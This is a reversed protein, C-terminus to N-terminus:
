TSLKERYRALVKQGRSGPHFSLEEDSVLIYEQMKIRHKQYLGSLYNLLPALLTLELIFEFVKALTKGSRAEGPSLSFPRPGAFFGQVWGNRAWFKQLREHGLMPRLSAYEVATYLNRDKTLELDESAYHNLCFRGKVNIGYRRVGLIQFYLSVFLRTLWIRNKKTLVFLDIDSDKGSNLLALSGSIAVLRLYPFFRLASLYKKAKRFNQVSVRYKKKREAVLHERGKLFYFGDKHGVLSLIEFDLVDAIDTLRVKEEEGRAPSPTRLASSSFVLYEKIELLTLPLDHADFFALTQYISKASPSM